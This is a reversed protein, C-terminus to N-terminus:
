KGGCPCSARGEPFGEGYGAEYGDAWAERWIRCYPRECGKDRCSEYRHEPVSM